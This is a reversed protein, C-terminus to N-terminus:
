EGGALKNLSELEILHIKDKPRNAETKMAILDEISAVHVSLGFVNRTVSRALLGEFSDVGPLVRIFDVDGVDTVLSIVSGFISRGGWPFDMTEPFHAPRPHFAAMARVLPETNEADAAVAFDSDVTAHDSGHLVMAMGGIVVYRVGENNLARILTEFEPPKPPM